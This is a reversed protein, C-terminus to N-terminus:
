VVSVPSLRPDSPGELSTVSKLKVIFIHCVGSAQCAFHERGTATRTEFVPTSLSGIKELEM